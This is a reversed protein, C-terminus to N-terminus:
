AIRRHWELPHALESAAFEFHIVRRHNPVTSPSSAHLILPRFALAGGQEVVCNTEALDRRLEDITEGSLRGLGHSRELVRVPGNEIGCPDLHVRIALMTELVAMPPQVHPVNAKESWPGYGAVDARARTAVTLDQHWSVKWNAHPTKDFLLARTAFCAEGLVATALGRVSDSRALAQVQHLDLLNRAGGRGDRAITGVAARLHAITTESVIPATVAWGREAISGSFTQLDVTHM